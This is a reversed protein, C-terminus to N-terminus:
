ASLLIAVAGYRAETNESCRLAILWASYLTGWISLVYVCFMCAMVGM